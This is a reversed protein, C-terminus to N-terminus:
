MKDCSTSFGIFLINEAARAMKGISDAVGGAHCIQGPGYGRQGDLGPQGNGPDRDGDENAVEAHRALDGLAALAPV